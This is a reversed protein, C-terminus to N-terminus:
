GRLTESLKSKRKQKLSTASSAGHGMDLLLEALKDPVPQVSLRSGRQTLPLEKFRPDEKLQALPVFTEFKAQYSIEVCFWRPKEKTAAEDYYDSRKDFQTPDAVAKSSSVKAIGALGSPDTNSHYFFVVDGQSMENMMYNRAQYNRVGDWLTRKESKLDDISYVNPESKMLWFKKSM